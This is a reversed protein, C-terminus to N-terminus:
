VKQPVPLVLGDGRLGAGPLLGLLLGALDPLAPVRDLLLQPFQIFELLGLLNALNRDGM